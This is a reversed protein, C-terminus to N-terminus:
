SLILEFSLGCAEVWRHLFGITPNSQWKEAQSVAQQSIGLLSALENQTLGADIRAKRLLYGPVSREWTPLKNWRRLACWETFSRPRSRNLRLRRGFTVVAM